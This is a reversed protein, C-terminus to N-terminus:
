SKPTKQEAERLFSGMRKILGNFEHMEIGGEMDDKAIFAPITVEGRKMVLNVGAVEEVMKKKRKEPVRRKRNVIKRWKKITAVKVQIYPSNMTKTDKNSEETDGGLAMQALIPTKAQRLETIDM